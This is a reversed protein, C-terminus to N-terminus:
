QRCGDSPPLAKRAAIFLCAPRIPAAVLHNCDFQNNLLDQQDHDNCSGLVDSPMLLLPPPPPTHRLVLLPTHYQACGIWAWALAFWAGRAMGHWAMGYRSFWGGGELRKRREM